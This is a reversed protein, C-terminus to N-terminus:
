QQVLGQGFTNTGMIVPRNLAQLAGAFIEPASATGENVLVVFPVGGTANPTTANFRLDANSLRGSTYVLLGESIFIDSVDVASQLVGGPNNRLDIVLGSLRGNEYLKEIAKEVEAGTKSQFQAIRLYGYGDELFRQRVSVVQIIERILVLEKPVPNGKRVSTLKM